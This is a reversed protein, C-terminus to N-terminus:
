SSLQVLAGAAIVATETRLTRPGLSARQYQFREALMVESDTLGGEPGIVLFSEAPLPVKQLSAAASSNSIEGSEATNRETSLLSFLNPSEDILGPVFIFRRHETLGFAAGHLDILASDLSDAHSIAIPHLGGSQALATEAVKEMRRLRAERHEGTLRRQSRAADFFVIRCIGLEVAKEVIFDATSPKTMGVILSVGFCREPTLKELVEAQIGDARIVTLKCRWGGGSARDVVDIVSDPRLRLVHKLHHLAPGTLPIVPATSSEINQRQVDSLSIIFRAIRM